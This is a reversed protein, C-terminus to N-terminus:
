RRRSLIRLRFSPGINNTPKPLKRPSRKARRSPSLVIMPAGLDIWAAIDKVAQDPLQAGGQPMYPKDKHAVVRYMQSSEASDSVMGGDMLADRTSLDFDGKKEKGDHCRLCNEVLMPRVHSKFLEIGKQMQKAHDAPLAPSKQGFARSVNAEGILYCLLLLSAAFPRAVRM